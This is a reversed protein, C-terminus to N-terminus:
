CPTGDSQSCGTRVRQSVSRSLVVPSGSLSVMLPTLPSFSYTVSVTTWVPTAGATRSSAAPTVTIDGDSIGTGWSGPFSDRVASRVDADPAGNAAARAGANAAASVMVDFYFVRGFDVIGVLLMSLVLLTFGFEVFAQGARPAPWAASRGGVAGGRAQSIAGADRRM